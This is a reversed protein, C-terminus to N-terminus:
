CTSDRLVFPRGFRAVTLTRIRLRTGVPGPRGFIGAEMSGVGLVVTALAVRPCGFRVKETSAAPLGIAMCPGGFAMSRLPQLQFRAVQGHAGMTVADLGSATLRVRMVAHGFSAPQLPTLGRLVLTAGVAPKGFVAPRLGFVGFVTSGPPMGAQLFADGFRVPRLSSPTFARDTGVKLKPVGFRGALFSRAQCGIRHVSFSLPMFGAPRPMALQPVGFAHAVNLSRVQVGLRHVGFSLPMFGAPRPMALQPVGFAHAANLSAAPLHLWLAPKGFRVPQLGQTQQQIGASAGNIVAGNILPYSM